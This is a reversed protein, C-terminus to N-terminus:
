GKSISSLKQFIKENKNLILNVSNISELYADIKKNLAEQDSVITSIDTTDIQLEKLIATVYFNFNSVITDNNTTGGVIKLTGSNIFLDSVIITENYNFLNKKYILTIISDTFTSFTEQVSFPQNDSKIGEVIKEIRSKLKENFEDSEIVKSM